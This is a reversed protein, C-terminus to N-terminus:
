GGYEGWGIKRMNVFDSDSIEFENSKKLRRRRRKEENQLFRTWPEKALIESKYQEYCVYCYWSSSIVKECISCVFM